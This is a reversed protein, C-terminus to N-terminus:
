RMIIILGILLYVQAVIREWKCVGRLPSQSIIPGVNEWKAWTDNCVMYSLLLVYTRMTYSLDMM